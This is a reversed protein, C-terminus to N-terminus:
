EERPDDPLCSQMRVTRVQPTNGAKPRDCQGPILGSPPHRALANPIPVSKQYGPRPPGTSVQPRERVQTWDGKQHSCGSKNHPVVMGESKLRCPKPPAPGRRTRFIFIHGLGLWDAFVVAMPETM